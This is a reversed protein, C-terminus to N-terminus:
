NSGHRFASLLPSQKDKPDSADGKFKLADRLLVMRGFQAICFADSIGDSTGDFKLSDSMWNKNTYAISAKKLDDSRKGYQIFTEMSTHEQWEKPPVLVTPCRNLLVGEIRGLSNGFEFTSKAASGRLAHVDEIFAITNRYGGRDIANKFEALHEMKSYGIVDGLSKTIIVIGGNAGPDIGIIYKIDSLIKNEISDEERVEVKDEQEGM